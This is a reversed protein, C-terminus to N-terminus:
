VDPKQRLQHTVQVYDEDTFDYFKSHYSINTFQKGYQFEVKHNQGDTLMVM